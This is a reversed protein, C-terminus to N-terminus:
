QPGRTPTLVVEDTTTDPPQACVHVVLRAVTEPSLMRKRDWNGPVGSWLDTDVAGPLLSTVRVGHPRMEERLVNTFGLTGWKSACYAANGPFVTRGAISVLNFVHGRRRKLQTLAARTVLYTGKLNTDLIADWTTEDTEEISRVQFSGASNVLIDIRKLRQVASSVLKRVSASDCVNCEVALTQRGLRQIQTAVSDIEARTRAALVVDAGAQALALAVARGIGRGAGTVVAVRGTLPLHGNTRRGPLTKPKAPAAAAMKAIRSPRVPTKTAAQASATPMRRSM